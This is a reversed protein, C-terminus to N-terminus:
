STRNMSPGDGGSLVVTKGFSYVCTLRPAADASASRCTVTLGERNAIFSGEREDEIQWGRDEHLLRMAHSVFTANTGNPYEFWTRLSVEPRWPDGEIVPDAGSEVVGDPAGVSRVASELEKVKSSALAMCGSLTVAAVIVLVLGVRRSM